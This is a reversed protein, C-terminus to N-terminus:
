ANWVPGPHLRRLFSPGEYNMLEHGFVSELHTAHATGMAVERPRSGQFVGFFDNELFLRGPFQLCILFRDLLALQRREFGVPVVRVLFLSQGVRRAPASKLPVCCQVFRIWGVFYLSSWDQANGVPGSRLLHRFSQDQHHTLYRWHVGAWQAVAWQAVAWQAGSSVEFRHSFLRLCRRFLHCLILEGSRQSSLVCVICTPLDCIV